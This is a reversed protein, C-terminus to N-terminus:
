ACYVKFLTTHGKNGGVKASSFGGQHVSQRDAGVAQLCLRCCARRPLEDEKEWTECEFNVSTGVSVLRALLVFRKLVFGVRTLQGFTSLLISEADSRLFTYNSMLVLARRIEAGYDFM